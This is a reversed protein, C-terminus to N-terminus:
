SCVCELVSSVPGLSPSLFDQVGLCVFPLFVPFLSVFGAVSILKFRPIEEIDWLGVAAKESEFATRYCNVVLTNKPYTDWRYVRKESFRGGGRPLLMIHRPQSVAPLPTM